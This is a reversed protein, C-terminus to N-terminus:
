RFLRICKDFGVSPYTLLSIFKACVAPGCHTPYEEDGCSTNSVIDGFNHPTSNGIINPITLRWLIHPVLLGWVVAAEPSNYYLFIFLM